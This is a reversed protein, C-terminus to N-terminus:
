FQGAKLPTIGSPSIELFYAAKEDRCGNRCSLERTYLAAGRGERAAEYRYYRRSRGDFFCAKMRAEQGSEDIFSADAPAFAPHENGSQEDVCAALDSFSYEGEGTAMRQICTM